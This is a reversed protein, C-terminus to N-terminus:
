YTLLVIWKGVNWLATLGPSKTRRFTKRRLRHYRHHRHHLWFELRSLKRWIFDIARETAKKEGFACSLLYVFWGEGEEGCTDFVM